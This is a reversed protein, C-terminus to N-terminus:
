HLDLGGGSHGRGGHVVHAPMPPLRREERDAVTQFEDAMLRLQQATDSDFCAHALLELRRAQKRLFEFNM